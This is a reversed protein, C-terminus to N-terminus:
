INADIFDNIIFIEKEDLNYLEYVKKNLLEVKLIYEKSKYVEEGYKYCLDIIDKTINKIQNINGIVIPIELLPQKDIQLQMGKRKGKNYLWYYVINSNLIGTLYIMDIRNTKISLYTRSVYTDIDVYTFCPKKTMRLCLIKEGKFINEERPRNLGYPKNDSTMIQSFRDLHRRINNYNQIKKCANKDMYIIWKDNISRRAYEGLQKSTYYPKIVDNEEDTLNLMNLEESTIVFIGEGKKLNPLKKLHKNTVTEQLIDIGNGIEKDILKFEGYKIIKKIVTDESNSFDITNAEGSYLEGQSKEIISVSSDKCELISILEEKKVLGLKNTYILKAIYNKNNNKRLLSIANHQGLASEFVKVENLNIIKEICTRNELDNRLKKAGDGKLFYNTTIFCVIGNLKALDIAKHFFLHFLDMRAEYFKKGFETKRIKRFLEKNGREGVYPPNGIVIDFGEKRKFIKSFELKWLFYPRKHLQRQKKLEGIEKFSLGKERNLKYEILEWEKDEIEKKIDKKIKTDKTDFLKSQLNQIDELLQYEQEIGITVENNEGINMSIQRNEKIQKRTSKEKLLEEDFLKIGRFEDILSNGVMINYDLNPLTNVTKKDADVVLSLWLRLKTIDVASPEIDVAFISKKMTNKKLKYISRNDFMDIENANKYIYDTIISRAKVIENLMGLPFAGSGVSPDAITVNELAKDITEFNDVIVKPMKYSEKKYTNMDSDKIIEGYKIFIEIDDYFIGTENSLYNILSEQCMYHVIERPTYFAGKSKREKVELLNEFIKGLMEPDVAVEKELPEDENITFNYMDFLDLLGQNDENSFFVNPIQISTNKWDYKYIPEFLGGNLFPIKCNFLQYYETNGRKRNLANYFLPELYENFFNFNNNQSTNFITRIFKRTGTGWEEDYKTNKFSSALKEADDNSLNKLKISSLVMFEGKSNYVKNIISRIEEDQRRYIERLEVKSIKKPVIKVGLWGKKQLFYLFSIQGMLKKAFEESFDNIKIDLTKAEAIFNNDKELLEKLDLYKEKYMKFFEDTVVEVSFVNEIDLLTAKQSDNYYLKSLQEQATHNNLSPDILYSYRKAPTLKQHIGDIDVTYDLKVFSIRWIDSKESYLAVISADANLEGMYKAIFNRQMTRANEPSEKLKIISVVITNKDTDRYIGIDKVYDIYKEYTKSDEEFYISNLLDKSELNVLNIAFETFLEESFKQTLIDKIDIISASSCM